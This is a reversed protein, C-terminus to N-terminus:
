ATWKADLQSVLRKLDQARSKPCVLTADATHVIILDEVGLAAVLHGRESIVINGAADLLATDGRRVNGAPDPADHRALAPWEGVDDWDFAAPVCVVNDSKELVAYDVSIKKLTPYFAALDDGHEAVGAAVANWVEPEHRRFADALADLTWVFMGANWLFGGEALYREATARDPKEVFRRVAYLPPVATGAAALKEGLQIYGYGTAPANPTIGITVLRHGGATDEAAAFAAALTRRFGAADAIVADAPLLALTAAPSKRAVLAGALAVVAATDRGCPEGVVQEPALQPCVELVADRQERNTIVWINEVPALGALRELTQAILPTEGVVPLLHKPRRARSQPWFREGRGGAMIVIHRANRAPEAATAQERAAPEAAATAADDNREENQNKM